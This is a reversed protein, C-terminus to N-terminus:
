DWRLYILLCSFPGVSHYSLAQPAPAFVSMYFTIGDSKWLSLAESFISGAQYHLGNESRTLM